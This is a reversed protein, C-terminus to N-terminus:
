EMVFKMTFSIIRGELLAGSQVAEDSLKVRSQYISRLATRGLNYGRPTESEVQCNDLSGNRHSVCTLVAYGNIPSRDNVPSPFEAKPARQWIISAPLGNQGNGELIDDRPDILPRGCATLTQEIATSSPDIEMVYRMRRNTSPDIAAIQLKGGSALKRAVIAPLRSFAVARNAGVSWVTTDLDDDEGVAVAVERETMRPPAEPLGSILLDYAGDVCRAAISLGSDFEIHAVTAKREASVDLTWDDAHM